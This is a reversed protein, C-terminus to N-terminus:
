RMWNPREAMWDRVTNQLWGECETALYFRPFLLDDDRSVVGEDVARQALATGPYIRIGVSVKMAELQLSDGFALSKEVTGRSEEPGGLLLFGMRDIGHEALMESARRIDELSFGKNMNRLIRESGSEFGLSVEKCGAQAMDKVLAEDVQGPYFICRWAIDLGREALVQCLRRAYSMPLNFTNDTFFFQRFGIHVHRAVADAVSEPSRKRLVRGEIM